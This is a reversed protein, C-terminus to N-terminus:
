KCNPDNCFQTHSSSCCPPCTWSARALSTLPVHGKTVTTKGSLLIYCTIM